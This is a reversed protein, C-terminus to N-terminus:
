FLKKSKFVEPGKYTYNAAWDLYFDINFRLRATYDERLEQLEYGREKIEKLVKSQAEEHFWTFHEAKIESRESLVVPGVAKTNIMGYVAYKLWSTSDASYFPFNELLDFVTIGFAHVKVNPNDSAQIISFVEQFYYKQLKTTVGHRGGIGIYPALEGKVPTNLIRKLHDKPEGFHYLPLINVPADVRERMYVYNEWSKESSYKATEHSLEPYPIIDLEAWVPIQPNDNIKKIYDDIDVSIGKHAVSFAGSDIFLKNHGAASWECIPKWENTQSFLRHVDKQQMYEDVGKQQSGAFYLNFAM